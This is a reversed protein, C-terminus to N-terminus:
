NELVQRVEVGSTPASAEPLGAAIAVAADLDAAELLYYGGIAEKTEVFPGDTVMPRGAAGRRITKATPSRQLEFAGLIAPGYTEHLAEHAAVNAREQEESWADWTQEDGYILVLFKAMEDDEWRSAGRIRGVM